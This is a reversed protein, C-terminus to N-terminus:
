KIGEELKKIKANANYLRERTKVIEEVKENMQYGMYIVRSELDMMRENQKVKVSFEISRPSTEPLIESGFMLHHIKADVAKIKGTLSAICIEMEIREYNSVPRGKILEIFTEKSSLLEKYENSLVKIMKWDGCNVVESM